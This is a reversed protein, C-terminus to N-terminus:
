APLDALMEREPTYIEVLYGDPDKVYFATRYGEAITYPGIKAGPGQVIEVGASPLRDALDMLTPKDVRLGIHFDPSITVARVKQLFLDFGKLNLVMKEPGLHKMYRAGLQGSYFAYSRGLNVTPLNLHNLWLAPVGSRLVKSIQLDASARGSLFHRVSEAYACFEALDAAAVKLAGDDTHLPSPCGPFVFAGVQRLADGVERGVMDAAAILLVPKGYRLGGNSAALRLRQLSFIDPPETGLVTLIASTRNPAADADVLRWGFPLPDPLVLPAATRVSSNRLDLSILYTM